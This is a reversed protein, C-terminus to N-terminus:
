KLPAPALAGGVRLQDDVSTIGTVKQVATEMKLKEEQSKVTGSLTAKGNEIKVRITPVSAALSTDARLESIVKQGIAQDAQSVGQVNVEFSEPNTAAAASTTTSSNTNTGSYRRTQSNGTATLGKSDVGSQSVTNSASASADGAGNTSTYLSSRSSNNTLSASPGNSYITTKQGSDASVSLDKHEASSLNDSKSPSQATGSQTASIASQSSAGPTAGSQRTGSQQTTGSQSAGIGASIAASRERSISSQPGNSIGTNNTSYLRPEQDPRDSTPPLGQSPTSPNSRNTSTLSSSASSSGSSTASSDNASGKSETSLAGSVDAAASSPISEGTYTRSSKDASKSATPSLNVQLQNNVNVVGATSKVLTEVAQKQQENPVTGNLIVTGNQATVQINPVVEVLNPNNNLSQRIQTILVQDGGSATVSTSSQSTTSPSYQNVTSSSNYGPSYTSSNYSDYTMGPNEYTRTNPSAYAPYTQQSSSYHTRHACGAVGLVLLSVVTTFKATTKM